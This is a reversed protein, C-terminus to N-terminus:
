KIVVIKKTCVLLNQEWLNIFYIGSNLHEIIRKQGNEIKCEYLTEGLPNLVILNFEKNQESRFYATFEGDNPNPFVEIAFNNNATNSLGLRGTGNADDIEENLIARALYVALGGEKPIQFAINQLTEVDSTSFEVNNLKANTFITLVDKLNAEIQNDCNIQTLKIQAADYEQAYISNFVAIFYGLNDNMEATYFNLFDSNSYRLVSDNYLSQLASLSDSCPM